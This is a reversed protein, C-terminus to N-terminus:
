KKLFIGIKNTHHTIGNQQAKATFLVLYAEILV